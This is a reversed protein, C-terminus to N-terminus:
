PRSAVGREEMMARYRADYLEKAEFLPVLVDWIKCIRENINHGYFRCYSQLETVICLLVTAARVLHLTLFLDYSEEVRQREEHPLFDNM